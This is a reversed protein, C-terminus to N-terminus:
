NANRYETPTTGTQNKFFRAFDSIENKGIKYSIESITMSTQKLLVKAELLLMENLVDHASKGTAKKVSKNLHNPSISLLEAYETIKQKQYIYQSLAKKYQETIISAANSSVAQQKEIFPKLETFLTILYTRLIDFNCNKGKKYEVLLRELLPKIFTKTESSVTVLPHSNFDLFPFESLLDKLKYDTTLLELNFHCYFGEVDDSIFEHTTIQYAPVFFFTNDGFDYTDLGKSRRSIGKSLFFFNFVTIRRPQLDSALPFQIMRLYDEIRNIHFVHHATTTFSSLPMEGQYQYLDSELSHADILPITSSNKM